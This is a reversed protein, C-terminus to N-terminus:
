RMKIDCCSLSVNVSVSGCYVPMTHLSLICSAMLACSTLVLTLVSISFSVIQYEQWRLKMQFPMISAMNVSSVRQSHEQLVVVCLLLLRCMNYSKHCGRYPIAPCKVVLYILMLALSTM